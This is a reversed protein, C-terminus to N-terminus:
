AGVASCQRPHAFSGRLQVDVASILANDDSRASMLYASWGAELSPLQSAQAADWGTIPTFDLLMGAFAPTLGIASLLVAASFQKFLRM